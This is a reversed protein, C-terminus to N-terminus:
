GRQALACNEKGSSEHPEKRDRRSLCARGVSTKDDVPEGLKDLLEKLWVGSNSSHVMRGLFGLRAALNERNRRIDEKSVGAYIRLFVEMSRPKGFLYTAHGLQPTEVVVGGAVEFIFEARFLYLRRARRALERYFFSDYDPKWILQSVEFDGPVGLQGLVRDLERKEVPEREIRARLRDFAESYQGFRHFMKCAADIQEQLNAPLEVNLRSPLAGEWEVARRDGTNKCYKSARQEIRRHARRIVLESKRVACLRGSVATDAIRVPWEGVRGATKLSQLKRLLPFNRGRRDELVLAQPNIRVLVDGQRAVVSEIGSALCYGADGLLLDGTGVPVRAFSEGKGEGVTPTLDFFDCRLEPLRVSYLMRWQSGTKGPEKVITGDVIRVSGRGAEDPMRVGNEAWLEVCLRHLWLESRRLRKLLGVDSIAALGAERARVTTERLSYGRAVHLLFTRLLTGPDTIGRQRWIARTRRAQEEWDVPFLSVLVQWNEDAANDM